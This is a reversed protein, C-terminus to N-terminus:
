KAPIPRRRRTREYERSYERRAERQEATMPKRKRARDYERRCEGCYKNGSKGTQMYTARDHGNRCTIPGAYCLGRRINEAHTVPELHDPNVCGRNRCLHDLELPEGTEPDNGVPGKTLIYAIQHGSSGLRHNTSRAYGKHNFKGLWNWCGSTKEVKSWFFAVMRADRDAQTWSALPDGYLQWRRYHPQCWGRADHARDCGDISCVGRGIKKRLELDGNARWRAYHTDCWERKRRPRGCTAVSCTGNSM